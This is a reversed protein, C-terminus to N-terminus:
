ILASLQSQFLTASVAIMQATALLCLAYQSTSSYDM